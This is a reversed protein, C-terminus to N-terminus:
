VARGPALLWARTDALAAAVADPHTSQPTKRMRVSAAATVRDKVDEGFLESAQRWEQLSLSEFERKEQLLRRVMAGVVEHAQRFPMGRSVLYDAVDTALLLGAAARGARDRHLTLRSVVAATADLSVALTHEADYLPQSQVTVAAAPYLRTYFDAIVPLGTARHLAEVGWSSRM